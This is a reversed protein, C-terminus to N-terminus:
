GYLRNRLTHEIVDWQAAREEDNLRADRQRARWMWFAEEYARTTPYDERLPHPDPDEPGPGFTVTLM